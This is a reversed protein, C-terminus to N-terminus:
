LVEHLYASLPKKEPQPLAEVQTNEARIENFRAAFGAISVAQKSNFGGPNVWAKRAIDILVCVPIGTKVLKSAATGDKAGQFLYPTKFFAEYATTWSNTFLRMPSTEPLPSAVAEAVSPSDKTGTGKGTVQDRTGSGQDM